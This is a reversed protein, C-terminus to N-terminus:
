SPFKSVSFIDNELRGKNMVEYNLLNKEDSNGM